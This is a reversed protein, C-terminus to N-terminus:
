RLRQHSPLNRILFVPQHITPRKLRIKQTLKSIIGMKMLREYTGSFKLNRLRRSWPLRLPYDKITKTGQSTEITMDAVKDGEKLTAEMKM